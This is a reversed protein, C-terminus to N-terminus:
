SCPGAQSLDVTGDNDVRTSKLTAAVAVLVVGLAVGLLLFASALGRRTRNSGRRHSDHDLMM